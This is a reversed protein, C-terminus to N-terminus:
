LNRTTTFYPELIPFGTHKGALTVFDRPLSEQEQFDKAIALWQDASSPPRLCAKWLVNYLMYCRVNYMADCTESIINPVTSNRNVLLLIDYLSM